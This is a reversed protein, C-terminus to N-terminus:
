AAVVGCGADAEALHELRGILAPQLILLAVAVDRLQAQNCDIARFVDQTL